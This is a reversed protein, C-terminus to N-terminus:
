RKFGRVHNHKRKGGFAGAANKNRNGLRKFLKVMEPSPSPTPASISDIQNTQNEM